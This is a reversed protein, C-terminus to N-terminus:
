VTIMILWFTINLENQRSNLVLRPICVAFDSECFTIGLSTMYMGAALSENAFLVFFHRNVFLDFCFIICNLTRLM